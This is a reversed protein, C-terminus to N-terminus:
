HHLWFSFFTKECIYDSHVIVNHLAFSFVKKRSSNCRHRGLHRIVVKKRREDEEEYWWWLPM